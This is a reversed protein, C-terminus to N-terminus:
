LAQNVEDEANLHRSDQLSAPKQWWNVHILHNKPQFGARCMGYGYFFILAVKAGERPCRLRIMDSDCTMENGTRGSRSM